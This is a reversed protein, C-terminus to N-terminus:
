ENAITGSASNGGNDGSAENSKSKSKSKLWDIRSMEFRDTRQRKNAPEVVESVRESNEIAPM